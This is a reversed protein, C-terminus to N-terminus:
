VILAVGGRRPDGAAAFGGKAERRAVHVGGYFLGREPWARHDKFARTLADRDGTDLFDEFDLHGREVHLRPAVVIAELDSAGAL